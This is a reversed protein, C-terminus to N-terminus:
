RGEKLKSSRTMNWKCILGECPCVLRNEEKESAKETQRATMTQVICAARSAAEQAKYRLFNARDSLERSRKQALMTM